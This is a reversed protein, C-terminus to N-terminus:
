HFLSTGRQLHVGRLDLVDHAADGGQGEQLDGVQVGEELLAEVDRVGGGHLGRHHLCRSRLRPKNKKVNATRSIIPWCHDTILYREHILM